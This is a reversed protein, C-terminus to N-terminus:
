RQAYWVDVGTAIALSQNVCVAQSAPASLLANPPDFIAAQVLKFLATLDTTGSGCNAATGYTLKVDEAQAASFGWACIYISKSGSAAILTTNGSGSLNVFTHLDCYTPVIMNGANDRLGEPLPNGSTAAGIAALGGIGQSGAVGGTLTTTGGVQKLNVDATGSPTTTVPIASQDSAIVIPLSSAMVKQGLTIATGSVSVLNVDQDTGSGTLALPTRWGYLRFIM